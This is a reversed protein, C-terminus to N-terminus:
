YTERKIFLIGCKKLEKNIKTVLSHSKAINENKFYINELFRIVDEGSCNTLYERIYYEDIVDSAFHDDSLVFCSFGAVYGIDESLRSALDNLVLSKTEKDKFTLMAKILKKRNM